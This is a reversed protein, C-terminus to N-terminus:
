RLSISTNSRVQLVTLLMRHPTVPTARVIQRAALAAIVSNSVTWSEMAVRTSKHWMKIATLVVVYLLFFHRVSVPTRRPYTFKELRAITANIDEQLILASKVLVHM